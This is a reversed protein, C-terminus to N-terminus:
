LLDKFIQWQHFLSYSIKIDRILILNLFTHKKDYYCVKRVFAVPYKCFNYLKKKLVEIKGAGVRRAASGSFDCEM